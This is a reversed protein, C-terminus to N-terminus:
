QGSSPNSATTVSASSSSSNASSSSSAANSSTQPNSKASSSNASSSTETASSSANSTQSQSPVTATTQGSSTRNTDAASFFVTLTSGSKLRTGATPQQAVALDTDSQDSHDDNEWEAHLVLGLEEAYDEVSKRTYGTLDRIRVSRRGSSVTFTVTTNKLIVRHDPSLSQKIIEGAAVTNSYHESKLVTVGKKELKKKIKKFSQGRYDGFKVKQPGRSVILNVESSQRVSTKAAPLTRIVQGHYYKNSYQHKIKGLKLHKENLTAAAENPSMGGLNPVKVSNSRFVLALILLILLFVAFIIGFILLKKKIKKVPKKPTKKTTKKTSDLPELLKTEDDLDQPQWRAENKRAPSLVTKLDDAMEQATQYRNHLDKATAHLIVNELAQPIAPNLKRVSPMQSQSHKLAISVATEGQFPVQGTLLEFLIIGLSYLDSQKTVVSGRAQEPSLYHVSGMLTNTQTLSDGSALAIGFDTIKVHGQRNILINQPKLDRHIIEHAHAHAVAALIQAMINVVKEFPIPFKEAIYNKLDTGEVYETVLYQMGNDEGVDYISVINPHSLKTLSIAERQFRRISAADDRLDLRMLKVAVPRHLILDRALYVNAMGGEGLSKKVQYRENLVYGARM